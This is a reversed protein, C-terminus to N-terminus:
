GESPLYGAEADATPDNNDFIDHDITKSPAAGDSGTKDSCLKEGNIITLIDRGSLRVVGRSSVNFGYPPDLPSTKNQFDPNSTEKYIKKRIATPRGKNKDDPQGGEITTLQFSGPKYDKALLIAHERNSVKPDYTIIIDGKKLAPLDGKKKQIIANKTKAAQIIAGIAVGQGNILRYEDTFFDYYRNIKQNKNLLPEGAYKFVYSAGGAAACARVFMGCSSAESVKEITKKRGIVRPDYSPDNRDLNDKRSGDGYETYLLRQAYQEQITGDETKEKNGWSLDVCEEAYGVIKDRVSSKKSTQEVVPPQYGLKKGMGGTIGAPSSGVIKGTTLIMLMESLKRVLVKYAVIRVGATPIANFLGSKFVINCVAAPMNPLDLILNPIQGLLNLILKPLKLPFLLDINLGPDFGFAPKPIPPISFSVPLEPPLKLIGPFKAALKIPPMVDLDIALKPLNPILYQLFGDPFEIDLKVDIGLAAAFALPDCIPLITFGGRLNLAAAIKEYQGKLIQAHFDPFKEENELELLAAHPNPEVKPGCPFIPTYGESGLTLEKKVDEVFLDKARQTLTEDTELIGAHYLCGQAGDGM